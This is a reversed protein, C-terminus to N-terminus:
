KGEEIAKIALARVQPSMKLLAARIKNPDDSILIEAMEPETLNIGSLQSDNGALREIENADDERQEGPLDTILVYAETGARVVVFSNEQSNGRIISSM